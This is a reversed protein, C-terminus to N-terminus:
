LKKLSFDVKEDIYNAFNYNSYEAVNTQAETITGAIYPTDKDITFVNGDIDTSNIASPTVLYDSDGNISYLQSEDSPIVEYITYQTGM